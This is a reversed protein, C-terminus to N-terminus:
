TYSEDSEGMDIVDQELYDILNVRSLIALISLTDIGTSKSTETGIVQNTIWQFQEEIDKRLEPNTNLLEERKSIVDKLLEKLHDRNNVLYDKVLQQSEHTM